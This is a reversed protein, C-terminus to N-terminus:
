DSCKVNRRWRVWRYLYISVYVTLIAVGLVKTLLFGLQLLFSFIFIIACFSLFMKLGFFRDAEQEWQIWQFFEDTDYAMM